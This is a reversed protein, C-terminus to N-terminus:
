FEEDFVKKYKISADNKYISINPRPEFDETFTKMSKLGVNDIIFRSILGQNLSRMPPSEKTATVERQTVLSVLSGGRVHLDQQYKEPNPRVYVIVTIFMTINCWLNLVNSMLNKRGHRSFHTRLFFSTVGHELNWNCADRPPTSM